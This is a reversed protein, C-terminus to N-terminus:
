VLTNLQHDIMNQIMKEFSTKSKWSLNSILKSSDGIRASNVRVINESDSLIHETYDLGQYSFAVECFQRLTHGHGSSIVYDGTKGEKVLEYIASVYDEAAGWDVVTDLCGLSLKDTSGNKIAVVFDVIKRSVFKNKRYRSEHNFMIGVTTKLGFANRYHECLKMSAYKSISYLSSLELESAENLSQVPNPKFILSSSTFFFHTNPSTLKIADLFNLVGITNVNFYERNDLSNQEEVASTHHAAFYFLYKPRYNQILTVVENFNALDCNGRRIGVNHIGLSMLLESMLLGDQGASGVIVACESTMTKKM